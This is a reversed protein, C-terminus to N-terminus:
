SGQMVEPPSFWGNSKSLGPNLEVWCQMVAEYNYPTVPVAVSQMRRMPVSPDMATGSISMSCCRAARCSIGAGTKGRQHM